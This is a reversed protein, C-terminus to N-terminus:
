SLVFGFIFKQSVQDLGLFGERTLGESWM